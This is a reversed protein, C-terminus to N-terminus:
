KTNTKIDTSIYYDISHGTSVVRLVRMSHGTTVVSQRLM